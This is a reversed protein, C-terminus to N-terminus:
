VGVDLPQLLHSCHPPLILLDIDKEICLAILDGSIHSSHGDMILLRPRDGSKKRTEPEFVKRMWEFGHSDSTWGSKSTSFHWDLLTEAPIWGSNVDQAKFIILPPLAGWAANVCEIVTVWEQKGATVKWNSKLTSDVIIRTSQSEGITFGTEDM